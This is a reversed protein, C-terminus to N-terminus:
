TRVRFSWIILGVGEILLLIGFVFPVALAAAIPSSLLLLGVLLNIAGFIFSGIGGGTFAGIIALAGVILGLIGLYVVLTAPLVVAAFLPHNLVLIGAVIGVLGILLSWMWPVSRDVFVRVLELVGMALWYFGLVVALGLLTAGPATLLLVGFLIAAIGELLFLWWIDSHQEHSATIVAM